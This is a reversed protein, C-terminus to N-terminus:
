MYREILTVLGSTSTTADKAAGSENGIATAILQAKRQEENEYSQRLYNAEDRLQQWYQSQELATLNYANQVNQQNAANAAATDATNAQRRWNINSQEVAQANAANWQDRQVEVQTNYQSIQTDLQAQSQSAQLANGANIASMRNTETANFQKMANMQTTNFQEMQNAQATMFQNVQNQSTANFQKAANTAAQNSLRTQQEMQADLMNAQQANSLNALDMQLFNNANSIRTKTALDAAQIDMQALTTADQLASQQRASFDTLTATQMFKSNALEVQQETSFKTLDIRAVTSANTIARQQDVSLQAVGMAQAIKGEALNTQMRVNLNALETQQAATMRDRDAANLASLNALRTQQEASLNAIDMQQKFAANKSLFDAGLQMEALREQQVASMQDKETANLYQLDALEIQQENGLNQSATQQDLQAQTKATDQQNALNQVRVQQQQEATTLVTQQRFQSQLTSMQQALQATQTGATQQNSLNAMRRQMDLTAASMNAQQENSLNQAARQQLAQANSQAIPLSTQVIANFLADRAVTSATLGRQAMMAEVQAVAPRAWTPTVGEDMGALLTEMQSSVLAETPLSAIAAQVEVAENDVAATVSAPNEVIAAAIQPPLEGVQAVMTAAEGKAAEGTVTRRQAAEFGVREIIEAAEREAFTDDTIGNRTQKEAERTPSVSVSERFDVQGVQSRQDERFQTDTALAAQEDRRARTATDVRNADTFDARTERATSEDSLTGVAEEADAATATDAEYTEALFTGAPGPKFYSQLAGQDTKTVTTTPATTATVTGATAVPDTGLQSVQTSLGVENLRQQALQRQYPSANENNMLNTLRTVEANGLSEVGAVEGVSTVDRTIAAQQEATLPEPSEVDIGTPADSSVGIRTVITNQTREPETTPTDENDTDTDTDTDTNPDVNSNNESGTKLPPNKMFEAYPGAKHAAHDDVYQQYNDKYKPDAPDPFPPAQTYDISSELHGKTRYGIPYNLYAEEPNLTDDEAKVPEDPDTPTLTPDDAGVGSGLQTQEGTQFSGEKMVYIPNSGGFETPPKTPDYNPNIIFTYRGITYQPALGEPLPYQALGPRGGVTTTEGRDEARGTDSTTPTGELITETITGKQPDQITTKNNPSEQMTNVPSTFNTTAQTQPILFPLNDSTTPQNPNFNPNIPLNFPNTIQQQTVNNEPIIPTGQPIFYQNTASPQQTPIYKPNLIQGAPPNALGPFRTLVDPIESVTRGQFDSPNTQNPTKEKKQANRALLMQEIQEPTFNPMGGVQKNVRKLSKKVRGKKYRPKNKKM